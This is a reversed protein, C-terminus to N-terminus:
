RILNFLSKLSPLIKIGRERAVELAEPDVDYGYLDSDVLTSLFYGDHCGIDLTRDKGKVNLMERAINYRVQTFRDESM